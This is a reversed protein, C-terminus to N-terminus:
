DGSKSETTNTDHLRKDIATLFRDLDILPFGGVGVAGMSEYVLEKLLELVEKRTM